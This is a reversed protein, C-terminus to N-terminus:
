LAFNVGGSKISICTGLWFLSHDHVQTNPPPTDIKAETEVNKKNPKPVTEVTHYIKNMKVSFSMYM